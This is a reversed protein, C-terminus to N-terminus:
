FCAGYSTVGTVNPPPIVICFPAGGKESDANFAKLKAWNNQWKQEIDLPDYSKLTFDDKEINM